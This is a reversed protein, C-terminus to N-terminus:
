QNEPHIGAKLTEIIQSADLGEFTESYITPKFVSLMRRYSGILPAHSNLGRDKFRSFGELWNIFFQAIGLHEAENNGDFGPFEIQKGFPAAETTIRDKDAQSLREYRSEIMDWMRLIEVTESVVEEDDEDGHFIDSYQQKLGWYHGGLIAAEVFEPDIEGKIQLHKIVECLMKLILKEGDSLKM